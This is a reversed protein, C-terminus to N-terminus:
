EDPPAMFFGAGAHVWASLAGVRWLSSSLLLWSPAQGAWAQLLAGSRRGAATDTTAAWPQGISTGM